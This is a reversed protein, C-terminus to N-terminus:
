EFFIWTAVLFTTVLVLGWGFAGLILGSYIPHRVYAFPGTEVLTSDDKPHPLASLNRGLFVIGATVLFVGVVGLILGVIIGVMYWPSGWLAMGPPMSPGILILAFLLFQIIVYWEGRTNKWWPPNNLSM